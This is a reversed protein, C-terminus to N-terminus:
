PFMRQLVEKATAALVADQEEAALRAVHPKLPPLPAYTLATLAARRVLLSDHWLGGALAQCFREGPETTGLVLLGYARALATDDAPQDLLEYIEDDTYCSLKARVEDLVSGATSGAVAVYCVGLRGDEVLYILSRRDGSAYIFQGPHTETPPIINTLQWGCAAAADDIDDRTVTDRLAVRGTPENM